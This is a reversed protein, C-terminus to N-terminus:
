SNSFLCIGGEGVDCFDFKPNHDEPNHCSINQFCGVCRECGMFDCEIDFNSPSNLKQECHDLIVKIEHSAWVSWWNELLITGKFIFKYVNYVIFM